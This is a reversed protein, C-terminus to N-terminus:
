QRKLGQPRKKKPKSKVKTTKTGKGGKRSVRQAAKNLLNRSLTM